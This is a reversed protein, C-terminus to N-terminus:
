DKKKHKKGRRKDTSKSYNKQFEKCPECDGHHLLIMTNSKKEKVEPKNQVRKMTKSMKVLYEPHDIYRQKHLASLADHFGPCSRARPNCLHRGDDRFETAVEGCYFCKNPDGAPRIGYEEVPWNNRKM